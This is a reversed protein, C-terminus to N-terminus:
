GIEAGEGLSQRDIALLYCETQAYVSAQQSRGLVCAAEGFFDGETLVAVTVISPPKEIM